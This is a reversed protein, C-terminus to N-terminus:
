DRFNAFSIGRGLSRVRSQTLTETQTFRQMFGNAVRSMNQGLYKETLYESVQAAAEGKPAVVPVAM